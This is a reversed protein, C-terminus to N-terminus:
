EPLIGPTTPVGDDYKSLWMVVTDRFRTFGKYDVLAPHLNKLVRHMRGGWKPITVLEQMSPRDPEVLPLYFRLLTPYEPV